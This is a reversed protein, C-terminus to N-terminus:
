KTKNLEQKKIYIQNQLFTMYFGFCDCSYKGWLDQMAEYEKELEKLTNQETLLM